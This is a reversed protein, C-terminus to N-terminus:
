NIRYEKQLASLLNEAEKLVVISEDNCTNILIKLAFAENYLEKLKMEDRVIFGPNGQTRMNGKMFSGFQNLRDYSSGDLFKVLLNRYRINEERLQLDAQALYRTWSDYETILNSIDWNRILRMNGARKLQEMTRDTPYYRVYKVVERSYDYLLNSNRFVDHNLIELQLSDCYHGIQSNIEIYERVQATDRKLDEVLSKIFQMERQREGYRDRLNGVFFSATIALFLMLFEILYQKWNIGTSETPHHHAPQYVEM